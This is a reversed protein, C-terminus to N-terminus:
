NERLNKTFKSPEMLSDECISNKRDISNNYSGFRQIFKQKMSTQLRNSKIRRVLKERKRALSEPQISSNFQNLMIQNRLDTQLLFEQNHMIDSYNSNNLNNYISITDM